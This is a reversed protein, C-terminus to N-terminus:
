DRGGIAEDHMYMILGFASLFAFAAGVIPWPSPEVLHFGPRDPVAADTM